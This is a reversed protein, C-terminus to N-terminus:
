QFVPWRRGDIELIQQVGVRYIRELRAETIVDGLPGRADIRGEHLVLSQEVEPPIEELHHTVLILGVQRELRLFRRLSVLFRERSGPDLGSFPEDLAVLWPQALRARAILVLQKEGQSLNGFAATALHECSLMSLQRRAEAYEHPQPDIGRFRVLGTQAVSGSVVTDLVRERHPIAAAVSPSVHGIKRRLVRLDIEDHGNWKVSGGANPRLHGTLLALLTSKGSGNAGLVAWRQGPFISWSIDQVLLRGGARYSVRDFQIISSEM